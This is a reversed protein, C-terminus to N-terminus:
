SPTSLSWPLFGPFGTLLSWSCQLPLAAGLTHGDSPGTLPDLVEQFGCGSQESKTAISAQHHGCSFKGSAVMDM